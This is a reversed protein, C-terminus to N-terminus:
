KVINFKSSAISQGDLMLVLIYNGSELGNLDIVHADQSQSLPYNILSKGSGSQMIYINAQTYEGVIEYECILYDKAPNPYIQMIHHHDTPKTQNIDDDGYVVTSSKLDDPLIYPENYIIEGSISLINRAYVAAINVENNYWDLLTTKEDATLQYINRDSSYVCQMLEYYATLQENETQMEETLVFDNEIAQLVGVMLTYEKKALYISALQYRAYINKSTSLLNVVSDM